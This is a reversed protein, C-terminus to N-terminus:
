IKQVWVIHCSYCTYYVTKNNYDVIKGLRERCSLIPCYPGEGIQALVEPTATRYEFDGDAQGGTAQKLEEDSLMKKDESM